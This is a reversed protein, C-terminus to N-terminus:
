LYPVQIPRVTTQIDSAFALYFAPQIKYEEVAKM